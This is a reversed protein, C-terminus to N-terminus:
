DIVKKESAQDGEVFAESALKGEKKLKALELDRRMKMQYMEAFSTPKEMVANEGERVVLPYVVAEPAPNQFTAISLRGSVSNVM